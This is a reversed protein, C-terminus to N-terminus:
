ARFVWSENRSFRWQRPFLARLLALAEPPMEADHLVGLMEASRYGTVLQALASSPWHIVPVGPEIGEQATVRRGQSILTVAGADTELAVSGDPLEIRAEPLAQLAGQVLGAADLVKIWDADPIAAGEPDAGQVHVEAGCTRALATFPTELTDYAPYRSGCPASPHEFLIREKGQERAIEAAAWLAVKSEAWSQAKVETVVLLDERFSPHEEIVLLPHGEKTNGTGLAREVQEPTLFIASHHTFVDFGLRRYLPYRGHLLLLPIGAQRVRDYTDKMLARFHGEMRRDERTAVDNVFAYRVGRGLDMEKDPDILIFSVPVGDVIRALAWAPPIADLDAVYSRQIVERIAHRGRETESTLYEVRRPAGASGTRALPADPPPAQDPGAPQYLAEVEPLAESRLRDPHAPLGDICLDYVRDFAIFVEDGERISAEFGEVPMQPSPHRDTHVRTEVRQVRALAWCFVTVPPNAARDVAVLDSPRVEVQHRLLQRSYVTELDGGDELTRVRCGTGTHSLVIALELDIM